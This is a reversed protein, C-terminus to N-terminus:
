AYYSFIPRIKLIRIVNAVQNVFHFEVVSTKQAVLFRQIFSLCFNNIKFTIQYSKNNNDRIGQGVSDVFQDWLYWALATCCGDLLCWMPPFIHGRLEEGEWEGVIEIIVPIPINPVYSENVLRGDPPNEVGSIKYATIHRECPVLLQAHVYGGFYQGHRHQKM